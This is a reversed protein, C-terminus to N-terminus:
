SLNNEHKELEKIFFPKLKDVDVYVGSYECEPYMEAEEMANAYIGWFKDDLEKNDESYWYNIFNTEGIIEKKLLAHSIYNKWAGREWESEIKERIEDDLCPYNDLEVFTTIQLESGLLIYVSESNYAGEFFLVTINDPFAERSCGRRSGITYYDEDKLKSMVSEINAKGVSGSGGYDGFTLLRSGCFIRGDSLNINEGNPDWHYWTEEM